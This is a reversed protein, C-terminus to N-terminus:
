NQRKFALLHKRGKVFDMDTILMKMAIRGDRKKQSVSQALKAAIVQVRLPDFHSYYLMDRLWRIGEVYKGHEM